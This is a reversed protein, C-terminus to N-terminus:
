PLLRQAELARLKEELPLLQAAQAEADATLIAAEEELKPVSEELEAERLIESTGQRGRRERLRKLSAAAQDRQRDVEGARARAKGAQTRAANLEKSAALIAAEGEPYLEAFGGELIAAGDKAAKEFHDLEGIRARLPAIVHEFNGQADRIKRDLIEQAEGAARLVKTREAAVTKGAEVAQAAKQRVVLKEVDARLEEVTRGAAVLLEDIAETSPEKSGAALAKVTQTWREQLTRQRGIEKGTLKEFLTALSM